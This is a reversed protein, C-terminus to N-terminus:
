QDKLLAELTLGREQAMQTLVNQREMDTLPEMAAITASIAVLEPDEASLPSNDTKQGM